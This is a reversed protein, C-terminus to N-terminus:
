LGTVFTGNISGLDAILLETGVRHIQAHRRSAQKGPLTIDCESSRGILLTDETLAFEQGVLPGQRITLKM